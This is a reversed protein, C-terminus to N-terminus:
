KLGNEVSTRFSFDVKGGSNKLGQAHGNVFLSFAQQLTEFVSEIHESGATVDDGDGEMRALVSRYFIEEAPLTAIANTRRFHRNAATIVSFAQFDQGFLWERRLLFFNFFIGIGAGGFHARRFFDLFFLFVTNM